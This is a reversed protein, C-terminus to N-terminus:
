VAERIERAASIDLLARWIEVMALSDLGCYTLLDRKAQEAEDPELEGTVIANWTESATAGEQIALGKYSLQPVLAPLVWKISTKGRFRPHVVMQASFVDMLDIFRANIAALWDAEAPLREALKANIGREFPKNWAIISGDAPLAAKLADVFPQDPRSKETFLFEEHVAEAGPREVTHLSFQFPVHNYPSYRPFRPLACPYTEYDLFAIPYRIEALFAGLPAPDVYPQRTRVAEAQHRQPLTLEFDGPVERIDLIGADVLARLKKPSAGIRTLDHVSYDPVHPNIAPFTTCQSSRGKYICSCPSTPMEALSILDQAADMEVRVAEFLATAKDTFDERTFLQGIDLTGDFVYAGNLRVLHLRGLPVGCEQLVLAQFAIDHAYLDDKAKRDDGSTSAKVEYLDYAQEADNWVLIDCATTYRETEFVPQYLVPSRAAVLQATGTADGRRILVGDPFLARARVDVDNGTEIIAQDFVSLPEAAYVEPRHVKMWANHACDRYVLYNTKSLKM